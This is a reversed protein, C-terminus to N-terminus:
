VWGADLPGNLKEQIQAVLEHLIKCIRAYDPRLEWLTPKWTYQAFTEGNERCNLILSNQEGQTSTWGVSVLNSEAKLEKATVCPYIEDVRRMQAEDIGISSLVSLKCDRNKITLTNCGTRYVYTDGDGVTPVM